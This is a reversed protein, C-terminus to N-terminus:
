LITSHSSWWSRPRINPLSHLIKTMHTLRMMMHRLVLFTLYLDVIRLKSRTYYRWLRENEEGYFISSENYSDTNKEGSIWCWWLTFTGGFEDERHQIVRAYTLNPARGQSFTGTGVGTIHPVFVQIQMVLFISIIELSTHRTSSEVAGGITQITFWIWDPIFPTISENGTGSFQLNVKRVSSQINYGSQVLKCWSTSAVKTLPLVLSVLLSTLFQLRLVLDESLLFTAIGTIDGTDVVLKSEGTSFTIERNPYHQGGIQVYNFDPLLFGWNEAEKPITEDNTNISVGIKTLNLQLPLLLVGILNTQLRIELLLSGLHLTFLFARLCEELSISSISM